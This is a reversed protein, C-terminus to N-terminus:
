RRARSSTGGSPKDTAEQVFLADSSNFLLGSSFLANLSDGSINDSAENTSDFTSYPYTIDYISDNDTGCDIDYVDITGNHQITAPGIWFACGIGMDFFRFYENGIEDIDYDILLLSDGVVYVNGHHAFLDEGGDDPVIFGFGSDAKVPIAMAAVITICILVNATKM